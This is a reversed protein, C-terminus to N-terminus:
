LNRLDKLLEIFTSCMHNYRGKFLDVDYKKIDEKTDRERDEFKKKM